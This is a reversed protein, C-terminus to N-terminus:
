AVEPYVLELSLSPLELGSILRLEGSFDEILATCNEVWDGDNCYLVGDLQEVAPYHLHGCIIGDLGRDRAMNVAAHQYATIAAEAQSVNVKVWKALSWYPRGMSERLQNFGRNVWMLLEYAIDGIFRNLRSYRVAYDLEDGHSVLMRKGQGTEHIAHERIRINGFDAGCFERFNADHNGPIYVVETNGRSIKMIKRLVRTHSEPWHVRKTMAWVDVIDGVLYLKQCEVRELLELLPEAKCHVSGLHVDSIWLTRCCVPGDPTFAQM